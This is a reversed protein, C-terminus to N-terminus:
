QMEANSNGQPYNMKPYSLLLVLSHQFSTYSKSSTQPDLIRLGREGSARDKAYHLMLCRGGSMCEVEQPRRLHTQNTFHKYLVLVGPFVAYCHYLEGSCHLVTHAHWRQDMGQVTLTLTITWKAESWSLM